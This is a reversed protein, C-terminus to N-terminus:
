KSSKEVDAMVRLFHEASAQNRFRWPWPDNLVSGDQRRFGIEYTANQWEPNVIAREGHKYKKLLFPAIPPTVSTSPLLPAAAGQAFRKLFARRNM